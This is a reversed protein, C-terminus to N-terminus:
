ADQVMADQVGSDNHVPDNQARIRLSTIAFTVAAVLLASGLLHIAVLPVPLGTFYQAYGILGQALTVVVLIWWRRRLRALSREYGATSPSRYIAILSLALAGIFLWVSLAHVRAILAPDLAFRYGVESDGSHPGSGTTLVGLVVIATTLAIFVAPIRRLATASWGSPSLVPVPVGDGERLRDLLYASGWVLAASVLFHVGVVGPHLHLLVTIGGLVAQFIVGGLPLFALKKLGPRNDTAPAFWIAVVLAIAVVGLIGTLTRNGFEIIPHYTSEAHLVPAFEGPECQPWTSCGLGSGTLRVVGGTLIIGIQAILNAIAIGIVWRDSYRRVTTM